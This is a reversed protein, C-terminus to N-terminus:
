ARHLGEQIDTVIGRVQQWRFTLQGAGSAGSWAALLKQNTGLRSQNKKVSQERQSVLRRLPNAHDTAATDAVGARVTDAVGGIFYRTHLGIRNPRSDITQWFSQLDWDTLHNMARARVLWQAFSQRYTEIPDDPREFGARVYAEAVLLNYLIAAGHMLLSFRMAHDLVQQPTPPAGLCVPDEWPARSDEHPATDALLLHELLTGRSHEVIREQLWAAEHRRLTLPGLGTGDDLSWPFGPPIPPLTPDWEGVRREALEDAEDAPLLAGTLQDPSTDRTLIGYTILGSWYISSPLLKVQAGALKGIVGPEDSKRLVEVLSREVRRAQAGAGLTPGGRTAYAYGWPVLLFYRARTQLVSTGPFLLDSIADRVQGVGLEDRSEQQAFMAIIERVRRQEEASTDMWALTSIM